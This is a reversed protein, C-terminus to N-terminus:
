LANLRNGVTNAISLYDLFDLLGGAAVTELPTLNVVKTGNILTQTCEYTPLQKLMLLGTYISTLPREGRSFPRLAALNHTLWFSPESGWPIGLGFRIYIDLGEKVSEHLQLYRAERAM